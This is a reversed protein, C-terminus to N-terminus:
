GGGIIYLIHFEDGDKVPKVLENPYADEGNIYIVVYDLLKGKKNFLMKKMDPFQEILHDLCEGVTDGKVGVVEQDNTYPQLYSPIDVKISM